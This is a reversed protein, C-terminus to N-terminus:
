ICPSKFLRYGVVRYGDAAYNIAYSVLVLPRYMGGKTDASFMDSRWFFDDIHALTRLHPNDVISHIDDYQFPHDLAPWYVALIAVAILPCAARRQQLARVWEASTKVWRTETMASAISIGM